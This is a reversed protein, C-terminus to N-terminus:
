CFSFFKEKKKIIKKDYIFELEITHQNLM